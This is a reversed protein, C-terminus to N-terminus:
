LAVDLYRSERPQFGASVRLSERMLPPLTSTRLLARRLWRAAPSRWRVVMGVMWATRQIRVVFAHRLAQYRRAALAANPESTLLRMLVLADVMASNAGQGLDPTMTHAADGIVIANGRYWRPVIVQQVEDYSVREWDEVARLVAGAEPVHERWSEIWEELRQTRIDDWHGRPASCYFYTCRGVLPALGFRRGDPLWVERPWPAACPLQAVGRLAAEGSARRAAALELSARVQSHTGDAAVVVDAQEVSGDAFELAIAAGDRVARTCRRGFALDVGLHTAAVRLQEQLDARLLVALRNQRFRARRYDFTALVRGGPEEIVVRDALEVAREFDGLLGLAELVRLGNSQIAIGGGVPAFSPAQEVVKVDLGLRTGAIAATLGAPGAGVIM